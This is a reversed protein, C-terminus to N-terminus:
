PLRRWEYLADPTREENSSGDTVKVKQFGNREYFSIARRNRQFVWLQLFVHREKAKDLLTKGLSRGVQAPLLYLHDVWGEKFACFGVLSQSEEAVWVECEPFVSNRYFIKDDEFSHLQPLYPLFHRRSKRAIAAVTDSEDSLARRFITKLMTMAAQRKELLVNFSKEEGPLILSLFARIM